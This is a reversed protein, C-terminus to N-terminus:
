AMLFEATSYGAALYLKVAKHELLPDSGGWIQTATVVRHVEGPVYDGGHCIGVLVRVQNGGLQGRGRDQPALM